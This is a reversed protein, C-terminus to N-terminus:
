HGSGSNFCLCSSHPVPKIYRYRSEARVQSNVLLDPWLLALSSCNSSWRQPTTPLSGPLMYPALQFSFPHLIIAMRSSDMTRGFVSSNLTLHDNSDRATSFPVPFFPYNRQLFTQLTKAGTTLQYSHPHHLTYHTQQHSTMSSSLGWQLLISVPNNSLSHM